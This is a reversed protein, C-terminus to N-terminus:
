IGNFRFSQLRSYMCLLEVRMKKKHEYQVPDSHLRMMVDHRMCVVDPFGNRNKDCFDTFVEDHYRAYMDTAERADCVVTVRAADEPRPPALDYVTGKGSPSRWSFHRTLFGSGTFPVGAVTFGAQQYGDRATHYALVSIGEGTAPDELVPVAELHELGSNAIKCM